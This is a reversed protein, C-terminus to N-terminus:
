RNREVYDNDEQKPTYLSKEQENFNTAAYFCTGHENLSVQGGILCQGGQNRCCERFGCWM